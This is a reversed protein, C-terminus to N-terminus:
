YERLQEVVQRLWEIPFLLWYLRKPLTNKFVKLVQPEGYGLLTAIHKIHTAYSDLHKQMEMSIFLDGYM